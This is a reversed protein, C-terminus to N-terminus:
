KAGTREQSNTYYSATPPSDTAETVVNVQFLLDKRLKSSVRPKTEFNTQFKKTSEICTTVEVLLFSLLIKKHTSSQHGNGRLKQEYVSSNLSTMLSLLLHNRPQFLSPLRSRRLFKFVCSKNQRNPRGDM